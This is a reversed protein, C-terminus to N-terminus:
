GIVMEVNEEEEDRAVEGMIQYRLDRGLGARRMATWVVDKGLGAEARRDRSVGASWASDFIEWPNERFQSENPVLVVCNM